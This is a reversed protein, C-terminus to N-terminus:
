NCELGHFGSGDTFAKVEQQRTVAVAIGKTFNIIVGQKM